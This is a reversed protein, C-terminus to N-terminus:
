APAVALGEYNHLLRHSLGMGICHVVDVLTVLAYYAELLSNVTPYYMFLLTFVLMVLAQLCKALSNPRLRGILNM